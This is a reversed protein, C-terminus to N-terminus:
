KGICFKSFINGLIEDNTIEGTITGLYYLVQRLDQAVFESSVQNKMSDLAQILAEYCRELAEYHRANTVIISHDLMPDQVFAILSQKLPEITESNKCSIKLTKNVLSKMKETFEFHPNLDIKNAVVIL